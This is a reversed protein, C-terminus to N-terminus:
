LRWPGPKQITMLNLFPATRVFCFRLLARTLGCKLQRRGIEYSCLFASLEALPGIVRRSSGILSPKVVGKNVYQIKNWEYICVCVCVCVCVYVGIAAKLIMDSDFRQGFEPSLSTNAIIKLALSPFNSLFFYYMFVACIVKLSHYFHRCSNISYILLTVVGINDKLFGFTNWDSGPNSSRPRRNCNCVCTPVCASM